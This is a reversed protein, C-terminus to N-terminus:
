LSVEEGLVGRGEQIGEKEDTLAQPHETAQAPRPSLSAKGAKVM